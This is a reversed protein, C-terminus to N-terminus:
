GGPTIGPLASDAAFRLWRGSTRFSAPNFKSDSIMQQDPRSTGTYGSSSGVKTSDTSSLRILL